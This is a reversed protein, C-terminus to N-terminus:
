FAGGAAANTRPYVLVSEAGSTVKIMGSDLMEFGLSDARIMQMGDEPDFDMGEECFLEYVWGDHLYIRTQYVTDGYVENLLLASVGGFQGVTIMGGDDNNKLKTWIYSLCTRENYGERSIATMNKYVNGGLMLVVLVSLAYVCYIMLVFVTDIKQGGKKEM